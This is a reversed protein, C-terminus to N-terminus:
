YTFVYHHMTDEICSLTVSHTHTHYGSNQPQKQKQQQTPQIHTNTCADGSDENHEKGVHRDPLVDKLRDVLLSTFSSTNSYFVNM